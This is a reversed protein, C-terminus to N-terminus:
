SLRPGRRRTRTSYCTATKCTRRSSTRSDPTSCNCRRSTAPLETCVSLAFVCRDVDHRDIARGSLRAVITGVCGAVCADVRPFRHLIIMRDFTAPKVSLDRLEAREHHARRASTSSADSMRTPLGAKPRMELKVADGSVDRGEKEMSRIDVVARRHPRAEEGEGRNRVVLQAMAAEASMM